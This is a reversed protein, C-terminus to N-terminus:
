CGLPQLWEKNSQSPRHGFRGSNMGLCYTSPPHPIAGPRCIAKDPEGQSTRKLFIFRLLRVGRSAPHIVDATAWNGSGPSPHPARRHARYARHHSPLAPFLGGFSATYSALLSKVILLSVSFWPWLSSPM